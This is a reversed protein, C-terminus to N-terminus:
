NTIALGPNFSDLSGDANLRAVASRGANRFNTFGGGVLVQGNPQLALANVSGDASPGTAFTTDEDGASQAQTVTVAAFMTLLVASFAPVLLARRFLLRNKM